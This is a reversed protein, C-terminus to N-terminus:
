FVGGGQLHGAGDFHGHRNLAIWLPIFPEGNTIATKLPGYLHASVTQAHQKLRDFYMQEQIQISNFAQPNVTALIHGNKDMVTIFSAWPATASLRDLWRALQPKNGEALISSLDTDRSLRILRHAAQNLDKTLELALIDSLHVTEKRATSLIEQYQHWTEYGTSFVIGIALLMLGTILTRRIRTVTYDDSLFHRTQM